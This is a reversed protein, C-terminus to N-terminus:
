RKQEKAVKMVKLSFNKSFFQIKVSEIDSNRNDTSMNDKWWKCPVCRCKKINYMSPIFLYTPVYMCYTRACHLSHGFFHFISCLAFVRYDICVTTHDESYHPKTKYLLNALVVSHSDYKYHIWMTCNQFKRPGMKWVIRPSSTPRLVQKQYFFHYFASQPLSKPYGLFANMTM